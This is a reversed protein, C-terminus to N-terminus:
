LEVANRLHVFRSMVGNEMWIGIVDIRVAHGDDLGNEVAFSSALFQTTMKVLQIQKSKDVSELPSGYGRGARTRVEVIVLVSDDLAVIDLEGHRCRWNRILVRWGLTNVVYTCAATEGWLGLQKRSDTVPGTSM